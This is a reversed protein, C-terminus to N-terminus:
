EDLWGLSKCKNYIAQLEEVTLNKDKRQLKFNEYFIKILTNVSGQRFQIYEYGYENKRKYSLVIGFVTNENSLEYGLDELTIDKNM